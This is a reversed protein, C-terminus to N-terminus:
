RGPEGALEPHRAVLRWRGSQASWTDSVVWRSPVTADGLRVVQSLRCDVVVVDGLDVSRLQHLDFRVWDIALAAALWADRGVLEDFGSQGLATLSRSSVFVFREDVLEGLAAADHSRVAEQLQETTRLADFAPM